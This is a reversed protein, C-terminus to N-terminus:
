VNIHGLTMALLQCQIEEGSINDVTLSLTPQSATMSTSVGEGHLDMVRFSRSV